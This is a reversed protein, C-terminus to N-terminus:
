GALGDMETAKPLVGLSPTKGLAVSRTNSTREQRESLAALASRSSEVKPGGASELRLRSTKSDEPM